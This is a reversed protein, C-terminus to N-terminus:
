TIDLLLFITGLSLSEHPTVSMMDTSAAFLFVHRSRIGRGYPAMFQRRRRRGRPSSRTGAYRITKQANSEWWSPLKITNLIPRAHKMHCPPGLNGPVTFPPHTVAMHTVHVQQLALQGAESSTQGLGIAQTLRRSAVHTHPRYPVSERTGPNPDAPM